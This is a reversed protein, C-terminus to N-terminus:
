CADVAIKKGHQAVGFVVEVEFLYCGCQADLFSYGRVKGAVGECRGYGVGIAYRNLRNAFHQAVGFEGRSLDVGANNVLRDASFHVFEGGFKAACAEAEIASFGCCFLNCVLM